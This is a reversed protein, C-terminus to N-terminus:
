WRTLLPLIVRAVAAVSACAATYWVAIWLPDDHPCAFVFVFAGWAAAAIGVALSTGGGDTPAGRRMLLGLALLPPLSLVVINFICGIGEGPQLREALSPGDGGTTGILGGVIAYLVILVAALRLGRGPSEAPNFSVLAAWTGALAILGMSVLKWWFVPHAMTAGLDPRAEGMALFLALEIAGVSGLILAEAMVSRRRVPKLDRALSDILLDSTPLAM